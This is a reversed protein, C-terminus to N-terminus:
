EEEEELSAIFKMRDRIPIHQTCREECEGCLTCAQATEAKIRWYWKLRFTIKKSDNWLIRWNYADM